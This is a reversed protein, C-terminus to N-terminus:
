EWAGARRKARLLLGVFFPGGLAATLVGVPIEAPALITRAVTDCLILFGAGTLLSAPLLVRHDPGVLLRVTHPVILGVFGIPGVLSVVAGTTLSAALYAWRQATAPNLDDFIGQVLRANLLLGQIRHGQWVRGPYTPRSNILFEDGVISVTSRRAPSSAAASEAAQAPFLSCLVLGIVSVLPGFVGLVHLKM